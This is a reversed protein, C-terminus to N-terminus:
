PKASPFAALESSITSFSSDKGVCKLVLDKGVGGSHLSCSERVNKRLNRLGERRYFSVRFIWGTRKTEFVM